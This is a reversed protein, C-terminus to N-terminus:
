FSFQDQSKMTFLLPAEKCARCRDHSFGTPLLQENGARAADVVIWEIDRQLAYHQM